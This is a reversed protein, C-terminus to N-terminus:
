KIVEIKIEQLITDCYKTVTVEIMILFQGSDDSPLCKIINVIITNIM